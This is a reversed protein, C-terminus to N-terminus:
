NVAATNARANAISKTPVFKEAKFIYSEGAQYKRKGRQM